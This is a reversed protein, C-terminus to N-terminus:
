RNVGGILGLRDFRATLLKPVAHAPDAEAVKVLAKMELDNQSWAGGM